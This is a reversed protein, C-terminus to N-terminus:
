HRQRHLRRGGRPLPGINQPNEYMTTLAHWDAVFCFMEYEDQLRVWNRLAGELNGLHLAGTGTPQMGSLLRKRTTANETIVM